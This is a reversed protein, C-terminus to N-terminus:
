PYLKYLWTTQIKVEVNNLTQVHKHTFANITIMKCNRSLWFTTDFKRSLQLQSKFPNWGTLHLKKGRELQGMCYELIKLSCHVWNWNCMFVLSGGVQKGVKEGGMKRCTHTSVWVSFGRMVKTKIRMREYQERPDAHRICRHTQQLWPLARKSMVEPPFIVTLLYLLQLSYM